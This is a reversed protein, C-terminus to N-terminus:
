LLTAHNEKILINNFTDFLNFRIENNKPIDFIHALLRGYKDFDGCFIRVLYIKSNLKERLKNRSLKLEIETNDKTILQYLRNRAQYARIKLNENKSKIECTDIDKLRVIFKYYTNFINLICTITDGDYIDVVRVDFFKNILSFKPTNDFTINDFNNEISTNCGM